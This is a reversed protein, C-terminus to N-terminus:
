NDLTAFKKIINKIVEVVQYMEKVVAFECEGHANYSGTGLNPCPLGMFSLRAGDTGGRIPSIEPVLNAEKIANNAIELLEPYQSVVEGMNRYQGKIEVECVKKGYKQNIADQAKLMVQQMALFKLADHERILYVAKANSVDGNLETLHFFGEFGETKEPVMHNPLLSNFEIAVTIANIMTNKAYGPHVSLGTFDVIGLAANFNQYELENPASGDVTFAYKAGFKAVDFFDAGEGIEEDSTFAIAIPGHPTNSLIIDEIAALIEAIGAKDDGGLLTTGDTIILEQGIYKKLKPFIETSLVKSNKLEIDKGDFLVIQPKVDKGSAADSTDVHAILGLTAKDELGLTAPLLAFLKGEELLSINICGLDELEKALLNLLDFQKATSPHKGSDPDSQTDIKVYRLFRDIVTEM